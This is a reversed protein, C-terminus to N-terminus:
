VSGFVIQLEVFQVVVIIKEPDNVIDVFLVVEM